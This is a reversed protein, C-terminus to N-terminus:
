FPMESGGRRNLLVNKEPQPVDYYPPCLDELMKHKRKEINKISWKHSNYNSIALVIEYARSVSTGLYEALRELIIEQTEEHMKITEDMMEIQEKITM